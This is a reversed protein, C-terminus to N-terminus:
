RPTRRRDRKPRVRLMEDSEKLVGCSPWGDSASDAVRSVSWLHGCGGCKLNITLKEASISVVSMPVGSGTGCASCSLIELRSELANPM